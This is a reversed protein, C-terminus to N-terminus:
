VSIRQIRGAGLRGPQVILGLCGALGDASLKVEVRVDGM